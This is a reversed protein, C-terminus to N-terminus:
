FVMVFRAQALLAAFSGGMKSRVLVATTGYRNEVQFKMGSRTRQIEWMNVSTWNM